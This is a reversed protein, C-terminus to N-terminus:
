NHTSKVANQKILYGLEIFLVTSRDGHYADLRSVNTLAPEARAAMSVRGISATIELPIFGVWPAMSHNTVRLKEKKGALEYEGFNVTSRAVYRLGLGLGAKLHKNFVFQPIALAAANLNTNIGISGIIPIGNEDRVVIPQEYFRSRQVNLQYRLNYRSQERTTYSIGGGFGGVLIGRGEASSYWLIPFYGQLENGFPYTENGNLHIRWEQATVRHYSSLLIFFFLINRCTHM